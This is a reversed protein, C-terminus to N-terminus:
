INKENNSYNRSWFDCDIFDNITISSIKWNVKDDSYVIKNQRLSLRYYRDHAVVVEGNTIKKLAEIGKIM